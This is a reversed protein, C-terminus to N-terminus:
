NSNSFLAEAIILDFPDTIKINERNGPVMRIATGMAEVVSADDTFLPTFSQQYAEQLLNSRFVQPTQVTHYLTRDVPMSKGDETKRLSEIMPLVPIASGSCAAEEFCASIVEPAVFPRVGDHVAVLSDSDVWQLGSLVSHFRTKGGDAIQHPITCNLEKCLMQWYPQHDRPLVLIQWANPNWQYFAQMTHMLVPKGQFPIFQKPLESGVRLGKGGAVIIVYKRM